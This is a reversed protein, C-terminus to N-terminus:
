LVSEKPFGLSKRKNYTAQDTYFHSESKRLQEDSQGFGWAPHQHEYWSENFWCYCGRNKAVETAENDSWLSKYDPHYIYGDRAYYDKGIISLTCIADGTHGDPFHIFQDYNGAFVEEIRKEFGKKLIKMDDSFSILVDWAVAAKDVDRNVSHIKGTSTGYAFKIRDTDQGGVMCPDDTDCKVLITFDKSQIM